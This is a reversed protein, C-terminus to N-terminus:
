VTFNCLSLTAFHCLLFLLCLPMYACLLYAKKRIKKKRQTKALFFDKGTNKKELLDKM